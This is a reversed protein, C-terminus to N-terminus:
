SSGVLGGARNWLIPFLPHGMPVGDADYDAEITWEGMASDYSSVRSLM